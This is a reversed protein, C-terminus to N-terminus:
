AIRCPEACRHQPTKITMRLWLLGALKQIDALTEKLAGSALASRPKGFVTDTNSQLKRATVLLQFPDTTRPSRIMSMANLPLGTCLMQLMALLVVQLRHM